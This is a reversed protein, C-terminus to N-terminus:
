CAGVIHLASNQARSVLEQEPYEYVLGDKRDISLGVDKFQM